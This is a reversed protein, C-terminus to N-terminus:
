NAWNILSRDDLERQAHGASAPEEPLLHTWVNPKGTEMLLTSSVQGGPAIFRILHSHIHSEGAAASREELRRLRHVIGRTM